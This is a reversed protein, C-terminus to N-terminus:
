ALVSIWDAETMNTICRRIIVDADTRGSLLEIGKPRLLDRAGGNSRLRKMYDKQDFLLSQVVRRHFIKDLNEEFFIAARRAGGKVLRLERFRGMDLGEWSSKPFSQGNMIWLVNDRGFASVSRKRDRNPANLYAGRALMLGLWCRGEDDAVCILLCPGEEEYTEKPIMWTTRVTNKVDVNEDDIVLDRVGKPVDLFDRFFHEVKLGIFTKEVNDLEAITTRGTRVPDIVYEIADRVLIPFSSLLREEGKAKGIIARRIKELQAFDPHSSDM